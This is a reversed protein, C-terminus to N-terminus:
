IENSEGAFKRYASRLEQAKDEPATPNCHAWAGTESSALFQQKEPARMPTFFEIHFHWDTAHDNLPANYICMMYPFLMDFLNDYMGVTNRVIEALASREAPSFDLM